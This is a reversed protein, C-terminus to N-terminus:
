EGARLRGTRLVDPLLIAGSGFFDRGELFLRVVFMSRRKLLQRHQECRRAPRINLLDRSRHVKPGRIWTSCRAHDEFYLGQGSGILHVLAPSGKRLQQLVSEEVSAFRVSETNNQRARNGIPPTRQELLHAHRDHYNWGVPLRRCHAIQCVFPETRVRPWPLSGGMEVLTSLFLPFQHKDWSAQPM